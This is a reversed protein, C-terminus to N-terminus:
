PETAQCTICLPDFENVGTASQTPNTWSISAFADIPVVNTIPVILPLGQRIRKGGDLPNVDKTPFVDSPVRDSPSSHGNFLDFIMGSFNVRNERADSKVINPALVHNPYKCVCRSVCFAEIFIWRSLLNSTASMCCCFVAARRKSCAPCRRRQTAAELRLLWLFGMVGSKMAALAWGM